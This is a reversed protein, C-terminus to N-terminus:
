LQGRRGKQDLCQMLGCSALPVSGIFIEFLDFAQSMEALLIEPRFIQGLVASDNLAQHIVIALFAKVGNALTLKADNIVIRHHVHDM